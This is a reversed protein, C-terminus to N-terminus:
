FKYKAGLAFTTSEVGTAVDDDYTNYAAYLKTSKSLSHVGAITFSDYETNTATNDNDGQGYAAYFMNAGMTYTGGIHWVDADETTNSAAPITESGTTSILGGDSEFQGFVKVENNVAYSGGVKVVDDAGGHGNSLYSVYALIGGNKYIGTLGVSNDDRDTATDASDLNYDVIAKFGNMSPSDYRIHNTMRGQGNEGAGSHLGSQLGVGRAQAATRYLPDIMAGTSKYGTSITGFKVEGFNGAFAIWQDRDLLSNTNSSAQNRNNSDFQFDLKYKVKLGNGINESGKFGISCTTCTLNMDDFTNVSNTDEDYSVISEDIHGFITAGANAVSMGGALTVAVATTLLKKNM